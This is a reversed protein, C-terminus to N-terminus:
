AKFEAGGLTASQALYEEKKSLKKGSLEAMRYKLAERIRATDRKYSSRDNEYADMIERRKDRGRRITQKVKKDETYRERVRM